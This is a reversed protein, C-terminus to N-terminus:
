KKDEKKKPTILGRGLNTIRFVGPSNEETKKEIKLLGKAIADAIAKPVNFQRQRLVYERKTDARLFPNGEAVRCPPYRQSLKREIEAESLSKEGVCFLVKIDDPTGETVNFPEM